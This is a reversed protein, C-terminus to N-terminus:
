VNYEKTIPKRWRVAIRPRFEKGRDFFIDVAGMQFDIDNEARIEVITVDDSHPMQKFCNGLRVRDVDKRSGFVLMRDQPSGDPPASGLVPSERDM